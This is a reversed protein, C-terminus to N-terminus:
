EFSNTANLGSPLTSTWCMCVCISYTQGMVGYLGQTVLRYDWQLYLFFILLELDGKTVLHILDAQFMYSGSEFFFFIHDNIEKCISM